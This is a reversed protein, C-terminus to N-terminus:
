TMGGLWYKPIRLPMSNKVSGTVSCPMRMGMSKKKRARASSRWSCAMPMRKEPDPESPDSPTRATRPPPPSVSACSVWVACNPSMGRLATAVPRTSPLSEILRDVGALSTLMTPVAVIASRDAPIGASFDMRPLLHPKVLLTSFWNMLGVALHSACLLLVLAFCAQQWAPVGALQTPPWLDLTALCTLLGIGGVYFTLPFRHLNREFTKRWPWRVAALRALRPLGKDILYYGVHATRDADGQQRASDAALEIARQAVNTESLRSYRALSEVAHRYRDRTAFDMAPYVGAPDSRLTAEVRSLTEVFAKWDMAGLFRLSAISHSVSVQDAAQNQSEQQILHEISLGQELLRQELWNRALHLVPNHRSLRQCFEAVFSSSVPLNSQAMAAVVVVLRSPHEEAVHQLRDVWTNAMERDDRAITLRTTIRKLNEILGLRLMIPIAWLEGLKLPDATQYAAVFASLPKADVQADVHAILELVIDYVRPLGSSPGNLLRPLERSYGRPLHRRTLQIQEEILYFNDLLWEAAPTIRQGPLSALTTRNFTRLSQENGDLRALLRNSNRQTVIRHNAALTRAHHALQEVSFLEARM